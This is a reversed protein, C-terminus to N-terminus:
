VCVLRWSVIVILNGLGSQLRGWHLGEDNTPVQRHISTEFGDARLIDLTRRLLFMNQWVGGSLVVTKIHTKDRLSRSVQGVMEAIGNHFKASITPIPVGALAETTISQIAPRM